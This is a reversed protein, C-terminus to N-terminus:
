QCVKNLLHEKNPREHLERCKLIENMYRPVSRETQVSTKYWTNFEKEGIYSPKVIVITLWTVLNQINCFSNLIEFIKPKHWNPEKRFQEELSELGRILNPIQRQKILHLESFGLAIMQCVINNIENNDSEKSKSENKNQLDNKLAKKLTKMFIRYKVAGMTTKKNDKGIRYAGTLHKKFIKCNNDSLENPYLKKFISIGREILKPWWNYLVNLLDTSIVEGKDTVCLTEIVLPPAIESVPKSSEKAMEARAAATSVRQQAATFIGFPLENIADRPTINTLDQKIKPELLNHKEKRFEKIETEIKSFNTQLKLTNIACIDKWSNVDYQKMGLHSKTFTKQENKNNSKPSITKSIQSETGDWLLKKIKDRELFWLNSYTSDLSDSLTNFLLTIFDLREYDIQYWLKHRSENHFKEFKISKPEDNYWDWYYDKKLKQWEDILKPNKLGSKNTFMSDNALSDYSFTIGYQLFLESAKSELIDSHLERISDNLDVLAAISFEVVKQESLNRRLIM